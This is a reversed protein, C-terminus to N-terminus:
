KKLEDLRKKLRQIESKNHLNATLNLADLVLPLESNAMAAHERDWAERLLADFAEEHREDRLMEVYNKRIRELFEQYTQRFSPTVRGM